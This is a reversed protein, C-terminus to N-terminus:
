HELSHYDLFCTLKPVLSESVYTCARFTEPVIVTVTELLDLMSGKPALRVLIGVYWEDNNEDDSDFSRKITYGLPKFVNPDEKLNLLRELRDELNLMCDKIFKARGVTHFRSEKLLLHPEVEKRLQAPEESPKYCYVKFVNTVPGQRYRVKEFVADFEILSGEFDRTFMTRDFRVGGNAEIEGQDQKDPWKAKRREIRSRAPEMMIPMSRAVDILVDESQTETSSIEEEMKSATVDHMKQEAAALHVAREQDLTLVETAQAAHDLIDQLLTGIEFIM